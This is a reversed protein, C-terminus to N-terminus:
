SRSYRKRDRSWWPARCAVWCRSPLSAMAMRTIGSCGRGNGVPTAVVAAALLGLVNRLRNLTFPPDFYREILWAVFLAEGANCFAFATATGVNRDGTLNAAITAVMAAGTVPLRADRGLAILVGSSVGAAPWFVAVGDGEARLALGLQAALFYAIGVATTLGTASIWPLTTDTSRRRHVEPTPNQLINEWGL